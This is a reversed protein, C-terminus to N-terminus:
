IEDFFLVSVDSDGLFSFGVFMDDDEQVNELSVDDLDFVFEEIDSLNVVFVMKM